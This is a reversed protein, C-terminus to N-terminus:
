RGNHSCYDCSFVSLCIPDEEGRGGRKWKYKTKNHNQGHIVLLLLLLKQNQNAKKTIRNKNTQKPKKQNACKWHSEEQDVEDKSKEGGVAKAGGSQGNRRRRRQKEEKRKAKYKIKPSLSSPYTPCPPLTPTRPAAHSLGTNWRKRKNKRKKQSSTIDITQTCMKKRQCQQLNTQVSM